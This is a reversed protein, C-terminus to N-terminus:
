AFSSINGRGCTMIIGTLIWQSSVQEGIPFQTYFLHLSSDFRCAEKIVREQESNSLAQGLIIMVDKWSLDYFLSIHQFQGTYNNLNTYSGLDAKLQKLETLLIPKHVVMTGFEGGVTEVLPLVKTPAKLFPNSHEPGLEQPSQPTKWGQTTRSVPTTTICPLFLCPPGPPTGSKCTM